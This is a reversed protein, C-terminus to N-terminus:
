CDAIVVDRILKNDSPQYLQICGVQYVLDDFEAASLGYHTGYYDLVQMRTPSPRETPPRITYVNLPEVIVRGEGLQRSLNHALSAVVPDYAGYSSLNALVGRAWAKQNKETRDIRDWGLRGLIKGIKPFLLASDGCKLFRSSCFEALWPEPRLIAEVEMGMNIYQGVIGQTGGLNQIDTSVAVTVSDDGCVISVWRGGFGHITYKMVANLYTDGLSTDPMGSQMTYPVSYRTGLSTKGKMAGHRRLLDCVRPNTTEEYLINLAACPGETIHEDFRSQDDELVVVYEGAECTSQILALAQVFAEGVDNANMGCTYVIQRGQRLDQLSWDRPALTEHLMKALARTYKGVAISLEPPCGQIMRPDKHKDDSRLVRMVLEQKIFSKCVYDAGIDYGEDHIKQFMARKSPLFHQVWEAFTGTDLGVCFQSAILQAVRRAMAFMGVWFLLVLQSNRHQPLLKGVRGELSILENHCCNRYVDAYVGEVGWVMRAGFIPVCPEDKARTTCNRTMLFGDQTEARDHRQQQVCVSHVYSWLFLRMDTGMCCMYRLIANFLFHVVCAQYFSLRSLAYHALLSYLTAVALMGYTDFRRPGSSCKLAAEMACFAVLWWKQFQLVEIPLEFYGQYLGGSGSYMHVYDRPCHKLSGDTWYRWWRDDDKEVWLFLLKPAIKIVEEAVAWFFTNLYFGLYWLPVRFYAPAKLSWMPFSELYLLRAVPTEGELADVQSPTEGTFVRKAQEHRDHGNIVPPLRDYRWGSVLPFFISERGLGLMRDYADYIRSQLVQRESDSLISSVFGHLEDGLGNLSCHVSRNMLKNRVFIIDDPDDFNRRDWAVQAMARVEDALAAMPGGAAWAPLPVRPPPAPPPPPPPGPRFPRHRWLFSLFAWLLIFPVCPIWFLWVLFRFILGLYRVRVLWHLVRTVFQVSLFVLRWITRCILRVRRRLWGCRVPRALPPPLQPFAVARFIAQQAPDVFNVEMPQPREDEPVRRPLPLGDELRRISAQHESNAFLTHRGESARGRDPMPMYDEPRTGSPATSAPLEAVPEVRPDVPREESTACPRMGSSSEFTSVPQHAAVYLPAGTTSTGCSVAGGMTTSTGLTMPVGNRFIYEESVVQGSAPHEHVPCEAPTNSCEIWRVPRQAAAIPRPPGSPHRQRHYHPGRRTCASGFLCLTMALDDTNTASGNNGNLTTCRVVGRRPPLYELYVGSVAISNVWDVLDRDWGAVAVIREIKKGLPVGHHVIHMGDWFYTNPKVSAGQVMLMAMRPVQYGKLKCAARSARLAEADVVLGVPNVHVKKRLIEIDGDSNIFVKDYESIYIEEIGEGDERLLMRSPMKNMTKPDNAEKDETDLDDTGTVSGQNGNLTNCKEKGVLEYSGDRSSQKLASCRALVAGTQLATPSKHSRVVLSVPPVPKTKMCWSCCWLAEESDYSEYLHEGAICKDTATAEQTPEIPQAVKEELRLKGSLSGCVRNALAKERMARIVHPNPAPARIQAVNKKSSGTVRGVRTTDVSGLKVGFSERLSYYGPPGLMPPCTGKKPALKVYMRKPVIEPTQTLDDVEVPLATITLDGGDPNAVTMDHFTMYPPDEDTGSGDYAMTFQVTVMAGPNDDVIVNQFTSDQDFLTSDQSFYEMGFSLGNFFTIDPSTFATEKGDSYCNYTVLFSPGTLFADFYISDDTISTVGVDNFVGAAEPFTALPKDEDEVLLPVHAMAMFTLSRLIAKYFVLDYTFWFEGIDKANIADPMGVTFIYQTCWNYQNLGSDTIKNEALVYRPTSPTQDPDCEIPCMLDVSPKGSTSYEYNGASIITSPPAQVQDYGTCLTLSGTTMVTSYESTLSRYEFVGGLLKWQQWARAQASLWPFVVPNTPNVTFKRVSASTSGQVLGLFERHRIRTGDGVGHMYPVNASEPTTVGMVSNNQVTFPVIAKPGEAAESYSGFGELVPTLLSEAAGGFWGGLKSGAWSGLASGISKGKGKHQSFGGGVYKGRGQIVNAAKPYKNEPNRLWEAQEKLKATRTTRRDASQTKPGFKAAKNTKKVSKKEQKPKRMRAELHTPEGWGGDKNTYFETKPGIQRPKKQSKRGPMDDTGTWEGNAGNISPAVVHMKVHPSLYM